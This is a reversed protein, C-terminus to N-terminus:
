DFDIHSVDRQAKEFDEPKGIDLWYTTIPYHVLKKGIEIIKDMLDTANFFENHPILYLFEKKILYIGANAYYIYNPKERFSIVQEEKSEIIAYPLNVEYPFSAVAMDANTQIFYNYFDEYDINTLLDSNLIIITDNKFTNITSVVGVTGLPQDEKVITFNVKKPYNSCHKELKEGLYNVSIFQNEIGYRYLHDINYNIIPKNGIKLLPKPTTLTMPLLRQGKGGAMIVADIPLITKFEAFNYLRVLQNKANLLPIVRFGEVRLRKIHEYNIESEKLYRFNKFTFNDISDDMTLGNILGRRIDGDTISGIIVDNNDHVFLILNVDLKNLKTLAEKLSANQNIKYNDILM